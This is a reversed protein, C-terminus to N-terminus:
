QENIISANLQKSIQYEIEVSHYNLVQVYIWHQLSMHEQRSQQTEQSQVLEIVDAEFSYCELFMLTEVVKFVDRM